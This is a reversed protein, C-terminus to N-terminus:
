RDGNVIYTQKNSIAGGVIAGMFIGLDSILILVGTAVGALFGVLPLAFISLLIWLGLAAIVAPLIAAALARRVSGVKYGGVLGGIFGNLLPLFFLVLTLGLMWISGTIISKPEESIGLPSYDPASSENDKKKLARM